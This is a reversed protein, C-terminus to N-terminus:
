AVENLLDTGGLAEDGWTDWGLRARRAFMELYPGGCLSEILDLFADPKQSHKMRAPNFPVGVVNSAVTGTRKPNGKKCALLYESRIPAFTTPFRPHGDTKHWIFTQKYEFGWAKVVDFAFPLWRDTTWLWLWSDKDALEPVPVDRKIEGFTLRKYALEVTEVSNTGDGYRGGKNRLFGQPYPWPPDAVITQYKQPALPTM